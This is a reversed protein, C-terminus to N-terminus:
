SPVYQNLDDLRNRECFGKFNKTVRILFDLEDLDFTSTMSCLAKHKQSLKSEATKENPKSPRSLSKHNLMSDSSEGLFDCIRLLTDFSPRREGREILGVYAASIGLFKGMESTTIGMKKRAARMNEGFVASKESAQNRIDEQSSNRM